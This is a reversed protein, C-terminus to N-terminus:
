TKNGTSIRMWLSSLVRWYNTPRYALVQLLPAAAQVRIQEERLQRKLQDLHSPHLVISMSADSDASLAVVPQAAALEKRLTDVEMTLADRNSMLEQITQQLQALQQDPSSSTVAEREMNTDELETSLPSAMQKEVQPTFPTELPSSTSCHSRGPSSLRSLKGGDTSGSARGRPMMHSSISKLIKALQQVFAAAAVPSGSFSLYLSLTQLATVCEAVAKPLGRQANTTLAYEAKKLAMGMRLKADKLKQEDVTTPSGEVVLSSM